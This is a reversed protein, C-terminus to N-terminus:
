VPNTRNGLDLLNEANLPIQHPNQHLTLVPRQHLVIELLLGAQGAPHFRHRLLTTVGIGGLCLRQHPLRHQEKILEQFQDLLWGLLQLKPNQGEMFRTKQGVGYTLM